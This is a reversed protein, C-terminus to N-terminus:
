KGTARFRHFACKRGQYEYLKKYQEATLGFQRAVHSLRRKEKDERKKELDHSYCLWTRATKGSVIKRVNGSKPPNAICRVCKHEAKEM